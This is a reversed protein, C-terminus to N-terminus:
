MTVIPRSSPASTDTPQPLLEVPLLPDAQVSFLELANAPCVFRGLM